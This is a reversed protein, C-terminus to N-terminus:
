HLHFDPQIIGHFKPSLPPHVPNYTNCSSVMDKISYGKDCQLM